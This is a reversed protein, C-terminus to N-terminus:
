SSQHRYNQGIKAYFDDKCELTAAHKEGEDRRSPTKSVTGTRSGGQNKSTMRKGLSM